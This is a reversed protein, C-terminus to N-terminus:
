TASQFSGASPLDAGCYICKVRRPSCPRGCKACHVPTRTIKGDLRGDQLDIQKVREQLEHDTIGAKEQLLSWLAACLLVLRDMREKIDLVESRANFPGPVAPSTAVGQAEGVLDAVMGASWLLPNWLSV